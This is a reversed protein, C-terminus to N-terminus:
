DREDSQEPIVELEENCWYSLPVSEGDNGVAVFAADEFEVVWTGKYWPQYDNSMPALQSTEFIEVGNKDLKGTYRERIGPLNFAGVAEYWIDGELYKHYWRNTLESIWEYAVIKGDVRVRLKIQM